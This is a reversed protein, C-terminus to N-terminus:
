AFQTIIKFKLLGLIYVKYCETNCGKGGKM